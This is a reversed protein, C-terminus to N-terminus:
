GHLEVVAVQENAVRERDIRIQRHTLHGELAEGL